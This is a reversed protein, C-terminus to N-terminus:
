QIRTRPLEEFPVGSDAGLVYRAGLTAGWWAVAGSVLVVCLRGVPNHMPSQIAPPTVVFGLMLGLFAGLVGGAVVGLLLKLRQKFRLQDRWLPFAWAGLYLVVMGLLIRLEPAVLAALLFGAGALAAVYLLAAIAITRQGPRATGQM